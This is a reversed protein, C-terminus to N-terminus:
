VSASPETRGAAWVATTWATAWLWGGALDSPHHLALLLQAAAAVAVFLAAGLEATRTWRTRSALLVVVAALAATATAHGSPYSLSSVDATAPLLDPRGRDVLHKLATTGAIAGGVSVASLVAVRTRRLALLGLVLAATAVGVAVYGTGADVVRALADLTDGSSARALLRREGPVQGATVVVSTLLLFAATTALAVARLM